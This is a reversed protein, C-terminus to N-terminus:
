ATGGRPCRPGERVAKSPIVDENKALEDLIAKEEETFWVPVLKVPESVDPM